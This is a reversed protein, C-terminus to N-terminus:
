VDKWWHPKYNKPYHSLWKGFEDTDTQPKIRFAMILLVLCCIGIFIFPAFQAILEITEENM